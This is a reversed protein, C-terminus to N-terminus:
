RRKRCKWRNPRGRPISGPPERLAPRAPKGCGARQNLSKSCSWLYQARNTSAIASLAALGAQVAAMGHARSPQSSEAVQALYTRCPASVPEARANGTVGYYAYHGQLQRNIAEHQEALPGHRNERCWQALRKVARGFRTKATKRKVIWRGNRSRAWFHTFGLMDFSSGAHPGEGRDGGRRGPSQFQVLRTKEPHLTLGYRAFRKGLVRRADAEREFGLVADDAYRVVFARGELRPKVEHEFWRDLVEHL